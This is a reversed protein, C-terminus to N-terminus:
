RLARGFTIGAFATRQRPTHEAQEVADRCLRGAWASRNRAIPPPLTWTVPLM